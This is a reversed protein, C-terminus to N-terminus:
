GPYKEFKLQPKVPSQRIKEAMEDSMWNYINAWVYEEKTQSNKQLYAMVAKWGQKLLMDYIMRFGDGYVPDLNLFHLCETVEPNGNFASCAAAIAECFGEELKKSPFAGFHRRLYSHSLEHAVVNFFVPYPLGDLIHIEDKASDEQWVYLTRNDGTLIFHWDNYFKNGYYYGLAKREKSNQYFIESPLIKIILTPDIPFEFRESLMKQAAVLYSRGQDITYVGNWRCMGCYMRGDRLPAVDKRSYCLGCHPKANCDSCFILERKWIDTKWSYTYYRGVCPKRCNACIPTTNDM